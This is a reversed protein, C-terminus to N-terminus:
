RGSRPSRAASPACPPSPWCSRPTTVARPWTCTASPRRPWGPPTSRAMPTAPGSAWSSGAGGPIMSANPALSSCNASGTSRTARAAGTGSSSTKSGGASRDLARNAVRVVHFPDAVRTVHDLHPSLGARYSQALDTAVVEVAALWGPDANACWRRLDRASNGKVMDIVRRAQLDVLGTAYVTAHARNARLFSTEDVGLHCVTGVRDPDDVLPTGHEVVAGMVTPWSVGFEEAVHSVARAHEGVQRCAEAGARRTLVVQAGVHESTETWTRANCDREPCRWRRKLWVLRAPRGFCALDRVPVARREHARARSGCSGCGTVELTTEVRIVVEGATEEVALVRFGPLGLLAEAWGSGDSV